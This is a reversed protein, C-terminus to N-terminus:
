KSERYLVMSHCRAEWLIFGSEKIPGPPGKMIQGWSPERPESRRKSERSTPCDHFQSRRCCPAPNVALRPKWQELCKVTNVGLGCMGQAVGLCPSLVTLELKSWNRRTTIGKLSM